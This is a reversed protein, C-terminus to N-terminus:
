ATFAAVLNLISSIMIRAYGRGPLAEHFTSDCPKIGILVAIPTSFKLTSMELVNPM